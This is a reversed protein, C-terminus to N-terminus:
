EEMGRLTGIIEDLSSSVEEATKMNKLKFRGTALEDPGVVLTYRAGLKNASRMQAKLSRREADLDASIGAARLQEATKFCAQRVEDNVAVVYVDMEPGAYEPAAGAKRLALITPVVGVAFGVCGAKPGGLEAVLNDYRGGGCVASRAGLSSHVLEFVTRTYYDFGRVLHDDIEFKLGAEALFRLVADFHEGCESDLHERMPPAKRAIEKCHPNKCDLVRFVNRELRGQCDQCLESKLPVFLDLLVNRYRARCNPCGISNLKPEVDKLGIEQFFRAALLISEADVMPDLSGIAECGVQSFQRLRGAQPREKRFMPGVYYLKWFGKQKLLDHEVAARVVPATAEPRLTLSSDQEAFTYMEKEVIDTAEGIGRVFLRTEEFLPTRIEEYGYRQFVRHATREILRVLSMEAPLIDPMGRPASIKEFGAM